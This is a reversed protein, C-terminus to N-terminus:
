NGQDLNVQASQKGAYLVNALQKKVCLEIMVDKKHSMEKKTINGKKKVHVASSSRM